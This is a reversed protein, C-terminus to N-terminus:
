LGLRDCIWMWTLANKNRILLSRQATFEGAVQVLSGFGESEAMVEVVQRYDPVPRSSYGKSIKWTNRNMDVSM